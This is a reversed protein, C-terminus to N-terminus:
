THSLTRSPPPTTMAPRSHLQPRGAPLSAPRSKRRSPRAPHASAPPPLSATPPPPSSNPLSQTRRPPAQRAKWRRRPTSSSPPTMTPRRQPPRRRCAAAPIDVAAAAATCCCKWCQCTSCHLELTSLRERLAALLYFCHDELLCFTQFRLGGKCVQARSTPSGLRGVAANVDNRATQKATPTGEGSNLFTVGNEITSTDDDSPAATASSASTPEKGALM